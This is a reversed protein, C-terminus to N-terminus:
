HCIVDVKKLSGKIRVVISNPICIMSEGSKVIPGMKKCTKFRCKTEIISVKNGSIQIKYPGNHTNLSITRKKFLSYRYFLKGHIIEVISGSNNKPNLMYILATLFFLLFVLLVDGIKIKKLGSRM